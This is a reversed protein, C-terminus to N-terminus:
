EHFLETSGDDKRLNICPKSGTVLPGITAGTLLPQCYQTLLDCLLYHDIGRYPNSYQRLYAIGSHYLKNAGAANERTAHYICIACHILGKYFNRDFASCVHWMEEWCDHAEHYRGANFLEVGEYFLTPDPENNEMFNQEPFLM